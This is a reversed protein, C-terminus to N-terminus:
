RPAATPPTADGAANVLRPREEEIVRLRRVTLEDIEVSGFKAKKVAMGGIALRAIAIAGIALAGFALAGAAAAPLSLALRREKTRNGNRMVIREAKGTAGATVVSRL